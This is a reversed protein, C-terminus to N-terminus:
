SMMGVCLRQPRPAGLFSGLASSLTAAFVGAVVLFGAGFLAQNRFTEFSADLLQDRSQAGGGLLIQMGYIVFGVAVAALTGLPISRAPNKLDGSMNVGAMIGTVAPFYLAFVVWFSMSPGRYSCSWNELFVDRQFHVIAGGMFAVISLGLIIMIVYQTKVAWKAGVYCICFLIATTILAITRFNNALDPFTRVLAETFGLVYFPVSIAQAFFLALGIAGGFEPGLARSILFYAGGGAVPTNTSVASISLATLATIIQALCLILLAHWIGAQGVVFGARMFMIVGLITLISPTFVGGFTGLQNPVVAPQKGKANSDSDM